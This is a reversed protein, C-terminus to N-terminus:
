RVWEARWRRAFELAWYSIIFDAGARRIANLAETMAAGEDLWGERAAAAISAYEGSVQYAGVPVGFESRVRHVIDLAPVGPKVLIFDAGEALDARVERLAEDGNAPDMQYGRRDGELPASDAADRFPGYFASAYKAAYSLIPVDMHGEADLARRIVRVRGDMMDSPAVVDAGARAHSVAVRALLELTEDNRVTGGELVGCHGHSTYECLCVDSILLLDPLEGRVRRLAEQVIGDEAWAGSGREDKDRPIGFLIVGGLGAARAEGAREVLADVPLREVGPMSPVPRPRDTTEDVFLPLVLQAPLLRSERVLSRLAPSSRLRRGRFFGNEVM